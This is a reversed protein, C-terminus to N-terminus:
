PKCELTSPVGQYFPVIYEIDAVKVKVAHSKSDRYASPIKFTFGYRGTGVKNVLDPRTTQATQGETLKDDIYFEVKLSTEPALSNWVWGRVEQCDRFDVAGYYPSASTTVAPAPSSSRSESTGSSPGLPTCAALFLCTAALTILLPFSKVKKM